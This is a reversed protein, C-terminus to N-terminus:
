DMLVVFRPPETALHLGHVSTTSSTSTAKLVPQWNERMVTRTSVVAPPPAGRSTMQQQMQLYKWGFIGGFLVTLLLLVLVFRKTVNNENNAYNHHASTLLGPRRWCLQQSAM